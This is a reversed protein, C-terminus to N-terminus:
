TIGGNETTVIYKLTWMLDNISYGIMLGNWFVALAVQGRPSVPRYCYVRISLLIRILFPFLSFILALISHHGCLWNIHLGWVGLISCTAGTLDAYDKSLSTFVDFFFNDVFDPAEFIRCLSCVRMWVFHPISTTLSELGCVYLLCYASSSAGVALLMRIGFTNFAGYPSVGHCYLAHRSHTVIHSGLCCM